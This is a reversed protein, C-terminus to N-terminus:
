FHSLNSSKFIAWKFITLKDEIIICATHYNLFVRNIQDQLVRIVFAHCSLEYIFPILFYIPVNFYLIINEWIIIGYIFLYYTCIMKFPSHPRVHIRLKHNFFRANDSDNKHKRHWDRFLDYVNTWFKHWM